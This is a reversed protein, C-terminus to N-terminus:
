EMANDVSAEINELTVNAYREEVNKIEDKHFSKTDWFIQIFLHQSFMQNQHWCLFITSDIHFM